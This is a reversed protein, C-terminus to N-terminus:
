FIFRDLNQKLEKSRAITLDLRHYRSEIVSYDNSTKIKNKYFVADNYHKLLKEDIDIIEAQKNKGEALTKALAIASIKFNTLCIRENKKCDYIQYGKASKRIAYNKIRISNGKQYPLVVDLSDLKSEVLDFLDKVLTKNNSM